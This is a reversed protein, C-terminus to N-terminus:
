RCASGAFFVYLEQSSGLDQANCCESGLPHWQGPKVVLRYDFKHVAGVLCFVVSFLLIIKYM